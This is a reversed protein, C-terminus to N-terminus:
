AWAESQRVILRKGSVPLSLRQLARRGIPLSGIIEATRLQTSCAPM